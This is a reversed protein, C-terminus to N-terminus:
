TTEAVPQGALAVAPPRDRRDAEGLLDRLPLMRALAFFSGAAAVAIVVRIGTLPVPALWAAASAVAAGVSFFLSRLLGSVASAAGASDGPALSMVLSQDCGAVIGSGLGVLGVRWTLGAPGWGPDLPVLLLMAAALAAAGAVAVRWSGFRGAAWGCLAASVGQGFAFVMFAVASVQLRGDGGALLSYPVAFAMVGVAFTMSGLGLLPVSLRGEAVLRFMGAAQPLRTWLALGATVVAALGAALLAGRLGIPPTRLLLFFGGVAATLAAGEIVWRVQPRLLRLGGPVTAAALAFAALLLPPSVLFVSRWGFAPLLVAGLQPGCISGATGAATVAAIAQARHFPGAARSAVSMVLVTLLSAFCGECARAAVVWGFGPSLAVAVASLAYGAAALLFAARNGTADSWHGLPLMLGIMPITAALLLWVSATGALGLGRGIAPMSSVIMSGDQGLAFIALGASAVALRARLTVLRLNKWLRRTV